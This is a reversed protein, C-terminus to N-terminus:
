ASFSVLRRILGKPSLELFHLGSFAAQGNPARVIWGVQAFNHAVKPPADHALTFGPMHKQSNAIHQDLRKAVSCPHLVILVLEPLEVLPTLHSDVSIVEGRALALEVGYDSISSGSQQAQRILDLLKAHAVLFDSLPRGELMTLSASFLQETAPNAWRIQLERDVTLVASPMNALLVAADPPVSRQRLRTPTM